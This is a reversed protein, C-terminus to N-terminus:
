GLLTCAIYVIKMPIPSAKDIPDLTFPIPIQVLLCGRDPPCSPITTPDM